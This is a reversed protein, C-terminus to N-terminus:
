GVFVMYMWGVVCNFGIVVGFVGILGVGYVDFEGFIVFYKEWFCNFGVWFYYLNVVFMGSGSVMCESGFVWGNSVWDVDFLFFGQCMEIVVICLIFLVVMVIMCEFFILMMIFVCYYVVFDNMLILFFWEVGCCWGFVKVVGMKVLYDNYGFVYGDYWDCIEQLQQVLDDGVWSYIGLVCM